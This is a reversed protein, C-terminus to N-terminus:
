AMLDVISWLFYKQNDRGVRYRSHDGGGDRIAQLHSLSLLHRQYHYGSSNHLPNVEVPSGTPPMLDIPRGYTTIADSRPQAVGDSERQRAVGKEHHIEAATRNAFVVGGRPGRDFGVEDSPQGGGKSDGDRRHQWNCIGAGVLRSLDSDQDGQVAAGAAIGGTM